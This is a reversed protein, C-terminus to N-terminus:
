SAKQRLGKKVGGCAPTRDEQSGCSAETPRWAAGAEEGEGLRRDDTGFAQGKGTQRNCRSDRAGRGQLYRLFGSIARHVEQVGRGGRLPAAPPQADRARRAASATLRGSCCWISSESRHLRSCKRSNKATAANAPP